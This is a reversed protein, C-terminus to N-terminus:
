AGKVGLEKEARKVGRFALENFGNDDLQGLDIILGVRLQEAAAATTASPSDEDDSGGCGALALM